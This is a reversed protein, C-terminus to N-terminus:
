GWSDRVIEIPVIRFRLLFERSILRKLNILNKLNGIWSVKGGINTFLIEKGDCFYRIGEGSNERM